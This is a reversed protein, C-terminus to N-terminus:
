RALGDILQGDGRTGLRQENMSGVIWGPLGDDM